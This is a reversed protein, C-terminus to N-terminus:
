LVEEESLIMLKRDALVTEEEELRAVARIEAELREETTGTFDLEIWMTHVCDSLLEEAELSEWQGTKQEQFWLVGPSDEETQFCSGNRVKEELEVFAAACLEGALERQRQYRFSALQTEVAGWVAPIMLGLIALATVVEILTCGKEREKRKSITGSLLHGIRRRLGFKM